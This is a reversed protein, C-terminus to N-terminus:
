KSNGTCKKQTSVPYPLEEPAEEGVCKVEINELSFGKEAQYDVKRDHRCSVSREREEDEMVNTRMISLRDTNDEYHEPRLHRKAYKKPIRPHRHHEPVTISTGM